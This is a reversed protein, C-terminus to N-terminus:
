PSIRLTIEYREVVSSEGEWQRWRKLKISTAGPAKAKILWQAEGGGGMKESTSVYQGEKIDVLNADASDIAWRYGTTANEPLHLAVEDGVPLEVTRGNDAATLVSSMKVEKPSSIVLSVGVSLLTALVAAVLWSSKCWRRSRKRCELRCKYSNM